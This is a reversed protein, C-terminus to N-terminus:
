LASWGPSRLMLRDVVWSAVPQDHGLGLLLEEGFGPEVAHLDALDLLRLVDERGELAVELGELPAVVSTEVERSYM